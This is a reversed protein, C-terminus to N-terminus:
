TIKPALSSYFAMADIMKEEDTTFITRWLYPFEYGGDHLAIRRFWHYRFKHLLTLEEDRTFGHGIIELFEIDIQDVDCGPRATDQNM